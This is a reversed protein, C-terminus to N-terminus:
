GERRRSRSARLRSAMACRRTSSSYQSEWRCIMPLDNEFAVRNRHAGGCVIRGAAKATILRVGSADGLRTASGLVGQPRAPVALARGARAATTRSTSGGSSSSRPFCASRLGLELARAYWDVTVGVRVSESFPGVRTFAERRILMLNPAPWPRPSAPPRISAAEAETLEPSVFERVHGFVADIEPESELM